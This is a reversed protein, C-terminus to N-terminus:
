IVLANVNAFSSLLLLFVVGMTLSAAEGRPSSAPWQFSLFAVTVPAGATGEETNKHVGVDGTEIECQM